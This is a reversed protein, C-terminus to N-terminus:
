NVMRASLISFVCRGAMSHPCWEIASPVPFEDEMRRRGDDDTRTPLTTTTTTITTTTTTATAMRTTLARWMVSVIVVYWTVAL